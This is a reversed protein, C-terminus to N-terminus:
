FLHFLLRVSKYFFFRVSKNGINKVTCTLLATQGRLMTINGSSELDDFYTETLDAKRVGGSGTKRFHLYQDDRGCGTFFITILKQCFLLCPLCSLYASILRLSWVLNASHIINSGMYNCQGSKQRFSGMGLRFM